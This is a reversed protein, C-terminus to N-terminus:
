KICVRKNNVIYIGPQLTIDVAGELGSNTYIRRGMIDYVSALTPTDSSLTIYGKHLEIRLTSSDHPALVESNSEDRKVEIYFDAVYGGNFDINDYAGGYQGKPDINNWDIKLRANYIGDPINEPVIFDRNSQPNVWMEAKDGDSNTANYYTFAVLEGNPIPRRDMTLTNNFVGDRNWDVFQFVHMWYGVYALSTSVKSGPTVRLAGQSSMNQWITNPYISTKFTKSVDNCKLTISNLVRSEHAVLMTEPFNLGYIAPDMPRGSEESHTNIVGNIRVNGVILEAPITYDSGDFNLNNKIYQVNGNIDFKSQNDINYGSVIDIGHHYYGSDPKIQISLPSQIPVQLNNIELGETTLVKGNTPLANVISKDESIFVVFDTISGCKKLMGNTNEGAPHLANDEIKLRMRYAGPMIDSPIKFKPLAISTSLAEKGESDKGDYYSYGLLDRGIRHSDDILEPMDFCGDNDFDLYLYANGKAGTFKTSIEVEEDPRFVLATETDYKYLARTSPQSIKVIRESQSSRFRVEELGKGTDSISSKKSLIVDYSEPTSIFQSRSGSLVINDIYFLFDDSSNHPSECEPILVLSHIEINGAVKVEFVADCWTNPLLKSYSVVWFQEVDNPQDEWFTSRGLGVLMVRGSVPRLLNVHFYKTADSLLLPTELDVRVGFLSSGFRSRQAGLVKSSKNSVKGSIPDVNSIPNDVIAYNGKLEGNRFPSKEWCDYVGIGKLGKSSEFDLITQSWVFESCLIAFLLIIYRNM